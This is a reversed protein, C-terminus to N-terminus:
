GRVTRANEMKGEKGEGRRGARRKVWTEKDRESLSNGEEGDEGNRKRAREIGRATVGCSGSREEREERRSTIVTGPGPVALGVRM